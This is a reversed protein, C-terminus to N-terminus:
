QFVGSVHKRPHIESNEMCSAMFISFCDLQKFRSPFIRINVEHDIRLRQRPVDGGEPGREWKLNNKWKKARRENLFIGVNIAESKVRSLIELDVVEPMRRLAGAWIGLDKTEFAVPEM